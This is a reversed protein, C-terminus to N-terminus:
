ALVDYFIRTECTVAVCPPVPCWLFTRCSLTRVVGGGGGGGCFRGLLSEITSCPM